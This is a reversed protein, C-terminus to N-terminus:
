GKANLLDLTRRRIETTCSWVLFFHFERCHRSIDGDISFDAGGSVSFLAESARVAQVNARARIERHKLEREAVPRSSLSLEMLEGKLRKQSSVLSQITDDISTSLELGMLDNLAKQAHGLALASTHLM